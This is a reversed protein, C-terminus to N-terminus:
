CSKRWNRVANEKFRGNKEKRREQAEDKRGYM